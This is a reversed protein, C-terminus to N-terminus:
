FQLSFYLVLRMAHELSSLSSFFIASFKLSVLYIIKKKKVLISWQKTGLWRLFLGLSLLGLEWFIRKVEAIHKPRSNLKREVTRRILKLNGCTIMRTDEVTQSTWELSAVCHGHFVCPWPGGYQNSCISLPILKVWAKLASGLMHAKPLLLLEWQTTWSATECQSVASLSLYVFILLSYLM